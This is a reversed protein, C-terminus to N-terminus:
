SGGTAGPAGDNLHAQQAVRLAEAWAERARRMENGVRHRGLPGDNRARREWAAELKDAAASVEANCSEWREYTDRYAAQAQLREAEAPHDDAGDHAVAALTAARYARMTQCLEHGLDRLRACDRDIFLRYGPTAPM